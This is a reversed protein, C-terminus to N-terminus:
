EISTLLKQWYAQRENVKSDQAGYIFIKGQHNGIGMAYCEGVTRPQWFEASCLLLILQQENLVGLAYLWHSGENYFSLNINMKSVMARFLYPLPCINKISLNDQLNLAVKSERHQLEYGKTKKTSDSIDYFSSSTANSLYFDLPKVITELPTNKHNFVQILRNIESPHKTPPHWAPKTSITLSLIFDTLQVEFTALECQSILRIAFLGITNIESDVFLQGFPSAFTAIRNEHALLDELYPSAVWWSYVHHSDEHNIVKIPTTTSSYRALNKPPLALETTNIKDLTSQLGKLNPGSILLQIKSPHYWHKKYALVDKPQINIITDSFGGAHQYAHASCDGRRVMARLRYQQNSEYMKLENLIVGDRESSIVDTDYNLEILGNYLYDIGQKFITLDDSCIYFCTNGSETSANINASLLTNFIFLEHAAPYKNSGRFCLHEALHSIGSHGIAPTAVIFVATYSNSELEELYVDKLM